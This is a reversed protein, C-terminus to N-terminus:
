HSLLVSLIGGGGGGEGGLKRGLATYAVSPYVFMLAGKGDKWQLDPVKQGTRDQGTSDHGIMAQGTMDELVAKGQWTRGQETKVQRVKSLIARDAKCHGGAQGAM